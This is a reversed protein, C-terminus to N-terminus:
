EEGGKGIVVFETSIDERTLHVGVDLIMDLLTVFIVDIRSKRKFLEKLYEEAGPPMYLAKSYTGFWNWNVMKLALLEDALQATKNVLDLRGIERFAKEMFKTALLLTDIRREVSDARVSAILCVIALRGYDLEETSPTGGGM